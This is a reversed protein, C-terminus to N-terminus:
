LIGFFSAVIALALTLGILVITNAKKKRLLYYMLMTYSFGLINPFIRDFFAEQISVINTESIAIKEIIQISVYDDILAGIM